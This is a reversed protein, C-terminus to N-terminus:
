RERELSLSLVVSTTFHSHLRRPQEEAHREHVQGRVQCQKREVAHWVRTLRRPASDPRAQAREAGRCLLLQQVRVRCLQPLCRGRCAHRERAHQEREGWRHRQWTRVALQLAAHVRRGRHWTCARHACPRAGRGTCGGAACGRGLRFGRERALLRHLTVCALSRASVARLHNRSPCCCLVFASSWAHSSLRDYEQKLYPSKFLATPWVFGANGPTTSGISLPMTLGGNHRMGAAADGMMAPAPRRTGCAGHPSGKDRPPPAKSLELQGRDGMECSPLTCM